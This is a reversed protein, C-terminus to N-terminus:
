GLSASLSGLSGLAPTTDVTFEDYGYTNYTQGDITATCVSVATYEGDGIGTLTTTVTEGASTVTGSGPQPWLSDDPISLGFSGTPRADFFEILEDGTSRPLIMNGCMSAADPTTFTVTADSRDVTASVDPAGLPAAAAMGAATITIAAAAIPVYAFARRKM